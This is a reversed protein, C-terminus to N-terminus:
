SPAQFRMKLVIRERGNHAAHAIVGALRGAVASLKIRADADIGHFAKQAVIRKGLAPLKFGGLLFRALLHEDDPRARCTQASSVMQAAHAMANMHDVASFGGAAHHAVANRLITQGTFHKVRFDLANHTCAHRDFVTTFHGVERLFHLVSLVVGYEQAHACMQGAAGIDGSAVGRANQVGHANKLINGLIFLRHEAAAHGNVAAAVGGNVHGAGHAAHSCFRKHHIAARAIARRRM